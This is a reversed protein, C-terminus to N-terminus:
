KYYIKSDNEGIEGKPILNFAISFRIDKSLNPDIRHYLSSPFLILTNDELIKLTIKECNFLNNILPKPRWTEFVNKFFTISFGENGKPYFVGSLFCNGHNHSANTRGTPLTKVVWSSSEQLYVDYNLKERIYETSKLLIHEKLYNLKKFIQYNKSVYVNEEISSFEENSIIKIIEENNLNLKEQGIIAQPFIPEINM